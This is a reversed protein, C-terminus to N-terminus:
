DAEVPKPTASTSKPLSPEKIYEMPLDGTL